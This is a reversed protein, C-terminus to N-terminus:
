SVAWMEQSMAGEKMKLALLMSNRHSKKQLGMERQSWSEPRGGESKLVRAIVELGGVFDLTVKM